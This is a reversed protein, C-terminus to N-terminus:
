QIRFICYWLIVAVIIATVSVIFGKDNKIIKM